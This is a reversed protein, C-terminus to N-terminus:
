QLPNNEKPLYNQKFYRGKIEFTDCIGDDVIRVYGTGIFKLDTGPCEVEAWKFHREEDTGLNEVFIESSPDPKENGACPTFNENLKQCFFACIDDPIDLAGEEDGKLDDILLFLANGFIIEHEDPKPFRRNPALKLPIAMDNIFIHLSLDEGVKFLRSSIFNGGLIASIEEIQKEIVTSLKYVTPEKGVEILIANLTTM